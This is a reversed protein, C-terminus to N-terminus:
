SQTARLNICLKEYFEFIIKEEFLLTSPKRKTFAWESKNTQIIIVELTRLIELIVQHEILVPYQSINELTYLASFLGLLDEAVKYWSSKITM